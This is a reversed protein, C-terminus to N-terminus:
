GDKPKQMYEILPEKITRRYESLIIKHLKDTTALYDKSDINNAFGDFDLILVYADPSKQGPSQQLSEVYRMYYEGKKVCAKFDLELADSLNFRGLPFASNYYSKFTSNDKSPIPCSDIYRLGIRSITQLPIIQLFNDITLKIADRFKDGGELDYTKHHKSTISVSDSQILLQYGKPSKFQWIKQGTPVKAIQSEIDATKVQPGVDAFALIKSYLIASEPFERMVKLQFDGMKEELYFLNPFRIQFAVEKVTPNPFIQKLNM